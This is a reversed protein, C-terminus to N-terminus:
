LLDPQPLASTSQAHHLVAEAISVGAELQRQIEPIKDAQKATTGERQQKLLIIEEGGIGEDELLAFSHTTM